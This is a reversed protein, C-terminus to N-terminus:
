LLAVLANLGIGCQKTPRSCMRQGRLAIGM